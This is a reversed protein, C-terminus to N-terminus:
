QDDVCQARWRSHLERAVLGCDWTWFLLYMVRQRAKRRRDVDVVETM